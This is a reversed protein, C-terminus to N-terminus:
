QIQGCDTSFFSVREWGARLIAQIDKSRVAAYQQLQTQLSTPQGCYLQDQALRDMRAGLDESELILVSQLHQRAFELEQITPGSVILDQLTNRVAAITETTHSKDTNTQIFWLGCDSYHDNRSDISYVLGLQERLVQYLRSDYGGALIHNAIDYAAVQSDQYSVTPMIWLLHNQEAQIDLQAQLPTYTPTPPTPREGQRFATNEVIAELAAVEINGSAVICINHSNITAQIYDQFEAWSAQTLSARSGLIQKGMSHDGWVKETALDELAEEPDDKLMALEQLVVERELDFDTASFASQTIMELLLGLLDNAYHYPVLGHFSTLERGTEANIQGGMIEFRSSLEQGSYQQTRKFLLHELFHSYGAQSASEYRTGNRLWVGVAATQVSPKHETIVTCNNIMRTKLTM